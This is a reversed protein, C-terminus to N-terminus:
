VSALTVVGQLVALVQFNVAQNIVPKIRNIATIFVRNFGIPMRTQTKKCRRWIRLILQM